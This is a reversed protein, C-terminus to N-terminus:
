GPHTSRIASTSWPTLKPPPTMRMKHAETGGFGQGAPHGSEASPQPPPALGRRLGKYPVAESPQLPTLRIGIPPRLRCQNVYHRQAPIAM